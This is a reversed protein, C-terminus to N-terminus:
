PININLHNWSRSRKERDFLFVFGEYPPYRNLLIFMILVDLLANLFERNEQSAGTEYTRHGVVTM